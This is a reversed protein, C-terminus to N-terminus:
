SCAPSRIARILIVKRRITCGGYTADCSYVRGSVQEGGAGSPRRNSLSAYSSALGIRVADDAMMDEHMIRLREGLIKVIAPNDHKYAQEIAYSSLYRDTSGPYGLTMAFDGEDIGKISIPLFHKPQYPVNDESYDAPKNDKGSYVRFVSFDGTHRPWMWNDTDGGFKGIASPPAGVLRIDRFIEYVFLLYQNGDYIPKIQATYDTGETAEAELQGIKEQMAMEGQGEGAGAMADMIPATVDEIKVLFKVTLGPTPIEEGLNKAWFGDTLYDHEVSSHSAIADYGCHHNTFMLGKSSVIEGTCFGGMQVIADKISSKNVSYLDEASLKYGLKKMDDYNMLKVLHPLWMGEDPNVPQSDNGAKAFNLAVLCAILLSLIKQSM